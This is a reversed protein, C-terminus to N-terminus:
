RPTGADVRIGAPAAGFRGAEHLTEGRLMTRLIRGRLKRGAWPTIAHRHHLAAADVVTTAEPDFVVLDADLGEAIRGKRHAVGALAAPTSSVWRSITPLDFGRATAETYTALFGLELGAIGGWAAMFDGEERRKLVPTCPSHDSVIQGIVGSALGEQWLRERNERERIPPCCKFLTEGDEIEEAAFTLYHPCTEATIPLGEKRAAALTELADSSSLHVIHARCGTERVLRVIMAIAEDEAARPRSALFTAYRRPDLGRGAAEARDIPGPVEAHVLLVAGRAALRPMARRLDAEVVNPFEDIGSHVLFCKFGTIGAEVMADLEAENGPIVGGWFAHDVFCRGATARAKEAVAAVTTTVPICNLPMDVVTTIGGAAAARTATEFGEWETRGPENVHVHADVAGPLIVHAGEDLLAVGPLLEDFAAISVIRGGRVHLSAPALHDGILVQTSRVILDM